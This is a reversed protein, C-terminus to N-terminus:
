REIPTASDVFLVWILMLVVFVIALIRYLLPIHAPRKRAM